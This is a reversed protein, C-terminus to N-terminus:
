TPVCPRKSYFTFANSGFCLSTQVLIYPCKFQFVLVNGTLHGQTKKLFHFRHRFTTLGAM